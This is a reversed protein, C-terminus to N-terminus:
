LSCHALYRDAIESLTLGAFQGDFATGPVREEWCTRTAEVLEESVPVYGVDLMFDEDAFVDDRLYFDVFADVAEREASQANVYLYLPRSLPEYLFSGITDLTPLIGRCPGGAVKLPAKGNEARRRNIEDVVDQPTDILERRPDVAVAQVRDQNNVFFAFGFYTLAFPNQSTQEALLQDEETGFYDARTDGEEENVAATFFDFTGSTEAAGSLTIPADAFRSGLQRWNTIFGEAERSWLLELEGVTLCPRGDKFIRTDRSVAVTVGDLAVLLEVYELGAEQAKQIESSKIARSADNIDTERALFRRFGGSTGSVGVSVKVDPRVRQFEAAVAQTIPAVTSSGDVLVTKADPPATPQARSATPARGGCGALMLPLVLGVVGVAAVVVLAARGRGRRSAAFSM